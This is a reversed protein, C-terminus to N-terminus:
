ELFNIYCYDGAICNLDVCYLCANKHHEPYLAKPYLGFIYVFSANFCTEHCHTVYPGNALDPIVSTVPM